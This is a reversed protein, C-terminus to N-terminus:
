CEVVYESYIATTEGFYNFVTDWIDDIINHYMQNVAMTKPWFESGYGGIFTVKIHYQKKEGAITKVEEPSIVDIDCILDKNRKIISVELLKKMLSSKDKSEVEEKLIRRITEKM